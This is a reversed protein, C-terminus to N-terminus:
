RLNTHLDSLKVPNQSINGFSLALGVACVALISRSNLMVVLTFLTCIGLYNHVSLDCGDYRLLIHILGVSLLILLPYALLGTSTYITLEGSISFLFAFMPLGFKDLVRYRALIILLYIFGSLVIFAAILRRGNTGTDFFKYLYYAPIVLNNGFKIEESASDLTDATRVVNTLRSDDHYNGPKQLLTLHTNSNSYQIAAFLLIIFLLPAISLCRFFVQRKNIPQSNLM